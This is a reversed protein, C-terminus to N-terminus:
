VHAAKAMGHLARAFHTPHFPTQSLLRHACPAHIHDRCCFPYPPPTPPPVPPARMACPHLRQLSAGEESDQDRHRLEKDTIARVKNASILPRASIIASLVTFVIERRAGKLIADRTMSGGECGIKSCYRTVCTVRMELEIESARNHSVGRSCAAMYTNRSGTRDPDGAEVNEIQGAGRVSESQSYFRSLSLGAMARCESM